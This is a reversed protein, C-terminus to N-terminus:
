PKVGALKDNPAIYGIASHLRRANYHEVFDATVRRAEDM